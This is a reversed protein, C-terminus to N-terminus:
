PPSDDCRPWWRHRTSKGAGNSGLLGFLGTGIAINVDDLAVAGGAYVQKVGEAVIIADM